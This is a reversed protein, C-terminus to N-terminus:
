VSAQAADDSPKVPAPADAELISPGRSNSSSRLKRSANTPPKIEQGRPGEMHSSWHRIALAAPRGGPLHGSLSLPPPPHGGCDVRLPWVAVAEVRQDYPSAWCRRGQFSLCNLEEEKLSTHWLTQPCIQLIDCNDELFWKPEGFRCHRAPFYLSFSVM